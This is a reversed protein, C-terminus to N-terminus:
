SIKKISDKNRICMERGNRINSLKYDPIDKFKTYTDKIIIDPYLEHFELFMEIVLGDFNGRRFKATHRYMKKIKEDILEINSKSFKALIAENDSDNLDLIKEETTSVVIEFVKIDDNKNKNRYVSAYKTANEKPCNYGDEIYTYIGDGLDNPLADKRWRFGSEIIKLSNSLNTAHYGIKEINDM